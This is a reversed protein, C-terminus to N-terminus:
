TNVAHIWYIVLGYLCTTGKKDSGTVSEGVGRLLDVSPRLRDSNCTTTWGRRVIKDARLRVVEEIEIRMM